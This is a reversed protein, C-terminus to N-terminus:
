WKKYSKWRLSTGNRMYSRWFDDNSTPLYKRLQLRQDAENWSHKIPNMNPSQLNWPLIAITHINFWKIALRNTHKPDHDHQFVWEEM